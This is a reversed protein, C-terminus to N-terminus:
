LFDLLNGFVTLFFELLKSINRNFVLIVFNPRPLDPGTVSLPLSMPYTEFPAITGFGSHNKCDWAQNLAVVVIYLPPDHIPSNRRTTSNCRHPDAVLPAVGDLKDM